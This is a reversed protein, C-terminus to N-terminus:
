YALENNYGRKYLIYGVRIGAPLFVALLVLILDFNMLPNELDTRNELCLWHVVSGRFCLPIHRSGPIGIHNSYMDGCGGTPLWVWNSYEELTGDFEAAM